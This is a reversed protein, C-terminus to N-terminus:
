PGLGALRTVWSRAAAFHEAVPEVGAETQTSVAVAVAIVLLAAFVLALLTWPSIRRRYLLAAAQADVVTGGIRLRTLYGGAMGTRGKDFLDDLRGTSGAVVILSADAADCLLLAADEGTGTTPFVVADRGLARARVLGAARTDHPTRVVLEAGSTLAEDSVQGLDGIILDPRHGAEILSDAGGDVGILVPRQDRLFGRLRALESRHRPGRVVVLTPRDALVTEVTPIGVRDILLEHERRLYEASAAAFAAMQAPLGARAAALAATIREADQEVGTAVIGEGRYLAGGHLRLREGDRVLAFVEPGANDVLLVGAAVIRQAGLTPYRGSISAAANVVAVVGRDLLAEATPLDIDLRDIVAIDGPRLRNPHIRGRRDVRVPATVGPPGGDKSRRLRPIRARLATAVKM